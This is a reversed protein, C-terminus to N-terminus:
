LLRILLARDAPDPIKAFSLRMKDKTTLATWHDQEAVALVARKLAIPMANFHHGKDGFLQLSMRCFPIQELEKGGTLKTNWQPYPKIIGTHSELLDLRRFQYRSLLDTLCHTVILAEPHRGPIKLSNFWTVPMGKTQPPLLKFCRDQIKRMTLQKPTSPVRLLAHPFEKPLLGYDMGYFVAQTKGDSIKQVTSTIISIEEVMAIAFADGTLKERESRDCAEFMNRFLTHLNFWLDAYRHQLIPAPSEERDPYVGAAGELALSTGISVPFQGKERSDIIALQRNM